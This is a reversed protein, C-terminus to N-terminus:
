FTKYPLNLDRAVAEYVLDGRYINVGKRLAQNQMVAKEIGLNAIMRAYELTVNTLAYTSTQAVAGPMNAVSKYIWWGLGLVGLIAGFGWIIKNTKNTM